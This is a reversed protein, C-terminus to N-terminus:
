NPTNYIGEMSPFEPSYGSDFPDQDSPVATYGYSIIPTHFSMIVILLILVIKEVRKM